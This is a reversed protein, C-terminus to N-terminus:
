YSDIIQLAFGCSVCVNLEKFDAASMEWVCGWCYGGKVLTSSCGQWTESYDVFDLSYNQFGIFGSVLYYM